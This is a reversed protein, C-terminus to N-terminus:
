SGQSAFLRYQMRWQDMTREVDRAHEAVRGADPGAKLEADMQQLQSNLQKRLENINKIQKQWDRKQTADFSDILREHEQELARVQDRIQGQQKGAENANFKGGTPQAMKRAQRRINNALRDCTRMQERQQTTAQIRKREMQVSGAQFGRQGQGQSPQGGQGLPLVVSAILVFMPFLIRFKKVM